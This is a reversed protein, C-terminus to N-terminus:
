KKKLGTGNILVAPDLTTYDPVALLVADHRPIEGPLLTTTIVVAQMGARRAAEIGALSDEFIICAAPLVDLRRAALLFMEPHPKGHQVQTSDIVAQFCADMELASLTLAVNASGASTALAM